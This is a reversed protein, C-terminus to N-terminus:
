QERHSLLYKRGGTVAAAILHTIGNAHILYVFEALTLLVYATIECSSPDWGGGNEQARLTRVLSQALIIPIRQQMLDESLGVRQGSNWM